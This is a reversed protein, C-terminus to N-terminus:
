PYRRLCDFCDVHSVVAGKRLACNAGSCGCGPGRSRFSCANMRGLLGMSEAVPPRAVRDARHPYEAPDSFLYLWIAEMKWPTLPPDAWADVDWRSRETEGLLWRWFGLPRRTICHRPVSYMAAYGFYLPKPAPCAFVYPWVAPNWFPKQDATHLRGCPAEADGYAVRYGGIHEVRDYAHTEPPPHSASYTETLSCLGDYEIALRGLIDPAHFPADGQVFCTREALDGYHAVIHHLMSHAERGVNPLSVRRCPRHAWSPRDGKDYVVIHFDAPVGDLWLLDENYRCVVLERRPSRPRTPGDPPPPAPRGSRAHSADCIHRLKM